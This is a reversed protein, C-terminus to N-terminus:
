GAGRITLSTRAMVVGLVLAGCAVLVDEGCWAAYSTLCWMSGIVSVGLPRLRRGSHTVAAWLLFVDVTRVSLYVVAVGTIGALAAAPLILIAMGAAAVIYYREQLRFDGVPNLLLACAYGLVVFCQALILIGFVDASPSYSQGLVAAVLSERFTVSFWAGLSVVFFVLKTLRGWIPYIDLRDAAAKTLHPNLIGQVSRALAIPKTAFEFHASYLGLAHPGAQMAVALRDVTALVLTALNFRMYRRIERGITLVLERSPRRFSVILGGTRCILWYALCGIASVLLLVAAYAVGRVNLWALLVFASYVFAMLAARTLSTRAVFRHADAWGWFASQVFFLVFAGSLCLLEGAGLVENETLAAAATILSGLTIGIVVNAAFTATYVAQRDAPYRNVFYITVPRVADFVSTLSFLLLLLSIRGFEAVPLTRALVLTSVFVVLALGITAATGAGLDVLVRRASITM